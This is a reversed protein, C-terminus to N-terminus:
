SVIWNKVEGGCKKVGLARKKEVCEDPKGPKVGSAVNAQLTLPADVFMMVTVLWFLRNKLGTL